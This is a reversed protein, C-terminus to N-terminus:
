QPVFVAVLQWAHDRMLSIGLSSRMIAGSRCPPSRARCQCVAARVSPPATADNSRSERSSDTNFAGRPSTRAAALAAWSSAWWALSHLWSEARHDPRRQIGSDSWTGGRHCCGEGPANAAIARSVNSSPRRSSPVPASTMARAAVRDLSSVVRSASALMPRSSAACTSSPQAVRSHNHCAPPGATRSAITSDVSVAAGGAIREPSELPSSCGGANHRERRGRLTRYRPPSGHFLRGGSPGGSLAHKFRTPPVQTRGVFPGRKGASFRM